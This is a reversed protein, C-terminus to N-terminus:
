FIKPLHGLLLYIQLMVKYVKDIDNCCPINISTINLKVTSYLLLAKNISMWIFLCGKELASKIRLNYMHRNLPNIKYIKDFSKILLM